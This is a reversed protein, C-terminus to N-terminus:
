AMQLIPFTVLLFSLVQLLVAQFNSIKAVPFFNYCFQGGKTGTVAEAGWDESM